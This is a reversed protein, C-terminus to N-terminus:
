KATYGGDIMLISGTIFRANDSALFLFFQAIEESSAIRGIPHADSITKLFGTADGSDHAAKQLLPTDVSGPCVANVRIGDAAYDVAMQRTLQIVAGKSPGYAGQSSLGVVSSISGTNLIVGGSQKQMVPIVYRAFWYISKVNVNMVRDWEEPTHEHIKKIIAIGANNILVDVRGFSKLALQVAQQATSEVAVDGHLQRVRPGYSHQLSAPCASEQLDVAVVNAEAELFLRVTEAGIGSASGTIIVTKDHLKM